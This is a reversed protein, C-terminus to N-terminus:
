ARPRTCRELLYLISRYHIGSHLSLGIECARSNSYGERCVGAVAARLHTLASRNLEPHSFGRDGAFGCCGVQGPVVVQAACARAVKLFQAELGMKRASCTVHVAVPEPLPAVKLRPLLWTEIFEVPEFLQLRRDLTRRMREICPSTDCLVPYRGQETAQWLAKELEAAKADAQRFLGKSEFPTGCCLHRVNPPHIIAFGARALVRHTVQVLSETRPDGAAPGMTRSICSPFYVVKLPNGADVAPRALGAAGSPMCRNWQPLRNGALRRLAGSLRELVESGVAGHILHLIKLGFRVGESVCEFHRTV